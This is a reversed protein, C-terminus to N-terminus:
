VVAVVEVTRDGECVRCIRNCACLANAEILSVELNAVCQVIQSGAVALLDNTNVLRFGLVLDLVCRVVGVIGIHRNEVGGSAFCLHPEVIVPGCRAVARLNRNDLGDCINALHWKQVSVGKANIGCVSTAYFIWVARIIATVRRSFRGTFRRAFTRTFSGALRGAFAGALGRAFRGAFTRTLSGAFRGTFAGTLGAAFSRALGGAFGAALSRALAGAAIRWHDVICPDLSRRGLVVIEVVRLQVGDLVIVVGRKIGAEDADLHLQDVRVALHNCFCRRVMVAAVLEVNWSAFVFDLELLHIIHTKGVLIDAGIQM